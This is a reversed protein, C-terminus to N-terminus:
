EEQQSPVDDTSCAFISFTLFILSVGMTTFIYTRIQESFNFFSSIVGILSSMICIAFAVKTILPLRNNMFSVFEKFTLGDDELDKFILRFSIGFLLIAVIVGIIIDM